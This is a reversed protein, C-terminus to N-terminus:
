QDEIGFDLESFGDTEIFTRKFEEEISQLMKYVYQPKYGINSAIKKIDKEGSEFFYQQAIYRQQKPLEEVRKMFAEMGQSFTYDCAASTSEDAIQIFTYTDDEDFESEQMQISLPNKTMADKSKGFITRNLVHAIRMKINTAFSATEDLNYRETVDLLEVIGISKIEEVEYNFYDKKAIKEVFYEKNLVIIGRQDNLQRYLSNAKKAAASVTKKTSKQEPIVVEMIEAQVDLRIKHKQLTQLVEDKNSDLLSQLAQSQGARNKANKNKETRTGYFMDFYPYRKPLTPVKKKFYDLVSPIKVIQEVFKISLRKSKEFDKADQEAYNSLYEKNM